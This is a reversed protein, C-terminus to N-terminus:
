IQPFLSNLEEAENRINGFKRESKIEANVHPTAQIDDINDTHSYSILNRPIETDLQNKM